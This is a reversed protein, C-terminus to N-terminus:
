MTEVNDVFAPSAMGFSLTTRLSLLCGLVLSEQLLWFLSFGFARTRAELVSDGNDSLSVANVDKWRNSASGLNSLNDDPPLLNMSM